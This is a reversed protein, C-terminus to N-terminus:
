FPFPCPNQLSFRASPHHKPPSIDEPYKIKNNTILQKRGGTVSGITFSGQCSRSRIPSILQARLTALPERERALRKRAQPWFCHGCDTSKVEQPLLGPTPQFAQSQSTHFGSHSLSKVLILAAQIPLGPAEAGSARCGLVPVAKYISVAPDSADAAADADVAYTSAMSCTKTM